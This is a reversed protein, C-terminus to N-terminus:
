LKEAFGRHPQGRRCGQPFLEAFSYGLQECYKELLFQYGMIRRLNQPSGRPGRRPLLPDIAALRMVEICRPDMGLRAAIDAM